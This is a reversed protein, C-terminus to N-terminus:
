SGSGPEISLLSKESDPLSVRLKGIRLYGDEFTVASAKKGKEVVQYVCTFSTKDMRRRVRLNEWRKGKPAPAKATSVVTGPVGRMTVVLRAADNRNGQKWAATWDKDTKGTKLEKLYGYPPSLPKEDDEALNVAVELDGPARAFWDIIDPRSGKVIFDDVLFRDVLLIRRTLRWGKYAKDTSATVAAYRDNAEFGECVGTVGRMNRGGITVTNHSPTTKFWKKHMPNGYGVTGMDPLLQKRLGYFILQLKDPHGHMTGGHHGHEIMACLADEGKGSRLVAVGTGTLNASPPLQFDLGEPLEKGWQWATDNARSAGDRLRKALAVKATEDDYWAAALELNRMNLPKTSFNMDNFSPTTLDPFALRLPMTFMKPLHGRKYLDDGAHMAATVHYILARTTYMHYGMSREFWMGDSLVGKDIQHKFGYRGENASDILDSDGLFYGALAMAANHWCAINHIRFRDRYKMIQKVSARILNNEINRAEESTMAPYALDAAEIITTLWSAETLSQSHVRGRGAPGNGIEFGAYHDAYWTLIRIAERAYKGDGTIQYAMSCNNARDAFRGHMYGRWTADRKKDTWEKGCVPCLHAHPKDERFKLRAGDAPCTYDHSWGGGREPPTEDNKRIARDADAKKNAWAEKAWKYKKIKQRMAKLGAKTYM